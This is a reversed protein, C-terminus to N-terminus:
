VDWLLYLWTGLSFGFVGIWQQDVTRVPSDYGLMLFATGLLARCLFGTPIALGLIVIGKVIRRKWILNM